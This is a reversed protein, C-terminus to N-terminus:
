KVNSKERLVQGPSGRFHGGWWSTPHTARLVRLIEAGILTVLVFNKPYMVTTHFERFTLRCNRLDRWEPDILTLYRINWLIQRETRSQHNRRWLIILIFVFDHACVRVVHWIIDWIAFTMMPWTLDRWILCCETDNWMIQSTNILYKLYIIIFKSKIPWLHSNCTM